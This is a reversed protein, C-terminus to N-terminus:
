LRAIVSTFRCPQPQNPEPNRTGGKAAGSRCRLERSPPIPAAPAHDLDGWGAGEARGEGEFPLTPRTAVSPLAQAHSGERRHSLHSTAAEFRAIVSLPLKRRHRSSLPFQETSKRNHQM